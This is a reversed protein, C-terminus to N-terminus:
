VLLKTSYWGRALRCSNRLAEVKDIATQYGDLLVNTMRIAEFNTAESPDDRYLSLAVIVKKMRAWLTETEYSVSKISDILSPNSLHDFYILEDPVNGADVLMLNILHEVMFGMDSNVKSTLNMIAEDVLAPELMDLNVRKVGDLLDKDLSPVDQLENVLDLKTILDFFLQGLACVDGDLVEKVDYVTTPQRGSCLKFWINLENFETRLEEFAYRVENIQLVIKYLEDEDAELNLPSILCILDKASSWARKLEMAFMRTYLNLIPSFTYGFPVYDEELEGALQSLVLQLRYIEIGKKVVSVMVQLLADVESEELSGIEQRIFNYKSDRELVPFPALVSFIGFSDFERGMERLIKFEPLVMNM